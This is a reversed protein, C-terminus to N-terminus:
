NGRNLHFLQRFFALLEIVCRSVADAIIKLYAAQVEQANRRLPAPPQERASSEDVEEVVPTSIVPNAVSSGQGGLFQVSRSPNWNREKPIPSGAIRLLSRNCSDVKNNMSQICLELYTFKDRLNLKLADIILSSECGADDKKTIKAVCPAIYTWKCGTLDYEQIRSALDDESTSTYTISSITTM